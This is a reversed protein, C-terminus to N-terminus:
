KKTRKTTKSRLRSGVGRKPKSTLRFKELSPMEFSDYDYPITPFPIPGYDPPLADKSRVLDVKKMIRSTEKHLNEDFAPLRPHVTNKSNWLGNYSEMYCNTRFIPRDKEHMKLTDSWQWADFVDPSLWFDRLYVWFEALKTKGEFSSLWEDAKKEGTPTSEIRSAIFLWGKGDISRVDEAPLVTALDLMGTKMMLGIVEEPFRLKSTLHKRIAQKFHFFCGVLIADPWHKKVMNIFNREFDIGVVAPNFDGDLDTRMM